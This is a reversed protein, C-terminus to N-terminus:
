CSCGEHVIRLMALGGAIIGEVDFGRCHYRDFNWIQVRARRFLTSRAEADLDLEDVAGRSSGNKLRISNGGSRAQCASKALLAVRATVSQWRQVIPGNRRGPGHKHAPAARLPTDLKSLSM